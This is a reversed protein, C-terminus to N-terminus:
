TFLLSLGTMVVILAVSSWLGLREALDMARYDYAVLKKLQQITDRVNTM